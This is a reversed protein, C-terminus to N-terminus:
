VLVLQATDAYIWAKVATMAQPSTPNWDLGNGVFPSLITFGFARNVVLGAYSITGDGNSKVYQGSSGGFLIKTTAIQANSAVDADVLQLSNLLNNFENNLAAATLIQLSTWITSRTTNAM